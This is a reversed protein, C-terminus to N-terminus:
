ETVNRGHGREEFDSGDQRGGVRLPHLRV